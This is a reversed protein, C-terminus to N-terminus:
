IRLSQTSNTYLSNRILVNAYRQSKLIKSPASVLEGKIPPGNEPALRGGTTTDFPQIVILKMLSTFTAASPNVSFQIAFTNGGLAGFTENGLLGVQLM